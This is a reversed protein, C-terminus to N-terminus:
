YLEVCIHYYPARGIPRFCPLPFNFFFKTFCLRDFSFCASKIPFLSFFFSILMMGPKLAALGEILKLSHLMCWFWSTDDVYVSLVENLVTHTYLRTPTHGLFLIPVCLIPPRLTRLFFCCRVQRRCQKDNLVYSIRTCAAHYRHTYMNRLFHM